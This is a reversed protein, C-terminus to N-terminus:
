SYKGHKMCLEIFTEVREPTVDPQLIHAPAIMYGGQRGLITIKEKIDAELEEDTGSPILDQQDVAGWFSLVEGWGSKIEEPGHHPVGPQVPNFIQFGIEHFDNLLESVAGDCHLILTIDKNAKRFAECMRVYHPKWIRRFYEVSFLLSSQGGFDDGVWLADVGTEILRLGHDIHFDTVRSILEPLYDKELAMDMLMKEMGVLQQVLTLITVEIDGIVFYDKNYKKVLECADDFRGPLSLDPFQYNLVDEKTEINKLPYEDVEVYIDGQHMKMGYENYWSGDPLIEPNFGSAESAGTVVVDSGMATRIENGSIRWTVDEYLNKTINVPINLKNGFHELLQRCLDFQVPVRDPMGDILKWAKM